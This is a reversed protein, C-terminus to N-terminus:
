DRSNNNNKLLEDKGNKYKKTFEKHFVYSDRDNETKIQFVISTPPLKSRNSKFSYKSRIISRDNSTENEGTKILRIGRKTGNTTIEVDYDLINIHNEYEYSNKNKNLTAFIVIDSFLYIKKDMKNEKIMYEVVHKRQITILEIPINVISFMINISNQLKMAHDLVENNQHIFGEITELLDYNDKDRPDSNNVIDKFILEYGRFRQFPLSILLNLDQYDYEVSGKCYEMFQNFRNAQEGKLNEFIAKAKCYSEVYKIYFQWKSLNNLFVNAIPIPGEEEYQEYAEGLEKCLKSSLKYIDPIYQFILHIQVNNLIENKTGVAEELPKKFKEIMIKLNNCYKKEADVLEGCREKNKNWKEVRFQKNEFKKSKIKRTNKDETKQRIKEYNKLMKKKGKKDEDIIDEGNIEKLKKNFVRMNNLNNSSNLNLPDDITQYYSLLEKIVVVINLEKNEKIKEEIIELKNINTSEGNNENTGNNESDESNRSNESNGNNRINESNESNENNESHDYNGYLSNPSLLSNTSNNINNSYNVNNYNIDSNTTSYSMARRQSLSNNDDNDTEENYLAEYGNRLEDDMFIPELYDRIFYGQEGKTINYGPYMESSFSELILFIEDNVSAFEMEKKCRFFIYNGDLREIYYIPFLGEKKTKENKGFIYNGSFKKLTVIEDVKIDIQSDDRAIFEKVCLYWDNTSENGNDNNINQFESYSSNIYDFGTDRLSSSNSHDIIYNSIPSSYVAGNSKIDIPVTSERNVSGNNDIQSVNNTIYSNNYISSRQSSYRNLNDNINPSPLYNSYINDLSNNLNESNSLQSVPTGPKNENINSIGYIEPNKETDNYQPINSSKIILIM